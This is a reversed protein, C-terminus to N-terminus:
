DQAVRVNPATDPVVHPLPDPRIRSAVRRVWSASASSAADGAVHQDFHRRGRCEDSFDAKSTVRPLPDARGLLPLPRAVHEHEAVVRDLDRQRASVPRQLRGVRSWDDRVQGRRPPTTM